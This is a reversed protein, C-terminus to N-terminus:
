RGITASGDGDIEETSGGVDEGPGICRVNRIEIGVGSVWTLAPCSLPPGGTTSSPTAWTACVGFSVRYTQSDGENNSDKGLKERM